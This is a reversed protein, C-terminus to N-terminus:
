NLLHLTKLCLVPLAAVLNPVLNALLFYCGGPMRHLLVIISECSSNDRGFHLMQADAQGATLQM